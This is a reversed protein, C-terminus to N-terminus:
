KILKIMEVPGIKLIKKFVNQIAHIVGTNVQWCENCLAFRQYRKKLDKNIILKDILSKQESTLKYYKIHRFGKIQELVEKDLCTQEM